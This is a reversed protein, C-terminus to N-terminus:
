NTLQPVQDTTDHNARDKVKDVEKALWLKFDDDLPKNEKNGINGRSTTNRREKLFQELKM